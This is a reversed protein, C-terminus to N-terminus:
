PDLIKSITIIRPLIDDLFDIAGEFCYDPDNPKNLFYKIDAIISDTEKIAEKLKGIM